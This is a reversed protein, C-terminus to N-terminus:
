VTHTCQTSALSSTHIWSGKKCAQSVVAVKGEGAAMNEQLNVTYAIKIVGAERGRIETNVFQMGSCPTHKHTHAHSVACLLFKGSFHNRLM